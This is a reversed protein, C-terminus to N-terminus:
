KLLWQIFNMVLFSMFYIFLSSVVVTVLVIITSHITEQRTPWDVKYMELRASLFLNWLGMGENTFMLVSSLIVTSSIILLAKLSKSVSFIPCYTSFFILSVTALVLISWLFKNFSAPVTKSKKKRVNALPRIKRNFISKM